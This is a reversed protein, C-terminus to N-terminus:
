KVDIGYVDKFANAIAKAYHQYTIKEGIKNDDNYLHYISSEIFKEEPEIPLLPAKRRLHKWFEIIYKRNVKLRVSRLEDMLMKSSEKLTESTIDLHREINGGDNLPSQRFLQELGYFTYNDSLKTSGFHVCLIIDGFIISLLKNKEDYRGYQFGSGEKSYGQCYLMRYQFPLNDFLHSIEANNEKAQLYGYLRNRLSAEQYTKLKVEGFINYFSVRWIVSLWFLYPIEPPIKQGQFLFNSYPSELLNGLLRECRPCFIYDKAANHHSLEKIREESLENFNKELEIQPVKRGIYAKTINPGITYLMETDRRGSHDASSVMTLLFSPILHSSTKTAENRRCISCQSYQM